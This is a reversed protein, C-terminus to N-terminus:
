LDADDDEKTAPPSLRKRRAEGAMELETLIRFLMRSPADRRSINLAAIARRERWLSNIMPHDRQACSDIFALGPECELPKLMEVELMVGPSFRAYTEDYAIKFSYGAGNEIFNVIMAIPKAGHSLRHFRLAGADHATVLADAFFRSSAPDSALATGERGKWGASELALFELTWDGLAKRDELTEFSVAGTEELRARLRRLEKRKKGRLADQLYRAADFGGKLLAREYAGSIAARRDTQAAVARAAAFVRGDADLHRLRFFAGDGEVLDFLAALAAAEHGRRLLPAAFFCHPHMWTALYRVPLRSYGRLPAVPALALLRGDDGEVVALRVAEDSFAALAPLLLAPSYFINPEAAAAALDAWGAAIAGADGAAVYRGAVRAAPLPFRRDLAGDALMTGADGENITAGNYSAPGPIPRM